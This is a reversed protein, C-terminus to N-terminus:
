AGPGTPAASLVAPPARAHGSDGQAGPVRKDGRPGKRASAPGAADIAGKDGDAGYDGEGNESPEDVLGSAGDTDGDGIEEPARERGTAGMNGAPGAPDIGLGGNSGTRNWSVRITNRSCRDQRDVVRLSGTKKADCGAVM